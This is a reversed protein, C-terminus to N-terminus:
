DLPTLRYENLPMEDVCTNCYGVAKQNAALKEEFAAVYGACRLGTTHECNGVQFHTAIGFHFVGQEHRRSECGREVDFDLHEIVEIDPITEINM